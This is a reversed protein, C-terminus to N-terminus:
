FLRFKKEKSLGEDNIYFSINKEPLSRHKKIIATRKGEGINKLEIICKSWYKIIDGGVMAVKKEKGAEFDEKSLFESYVQDTIIIPIERKRCIENLIRMQMSLSNNLMKAKMHDKETISEGLDLRYLMVLSDIIILGLEKTKKVIEILRSFAQRQEFFTTAKLLFINKMVPNPNGATLQKLREISFGGETDMYIVKKGRAAQEAAAILCLNTKGSAGPGYLTTIVDIEYGGELFEDFDRSGTSIKM